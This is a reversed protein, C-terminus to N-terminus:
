VEEKKADEAKHGIVKHIGKEAADGIAGGIDDSRFAIRSLGASWIWYGFWGFIFGALVQLIPDAGHSEMWPWKWVLLLHAIRPGCVGLMLGCLVRLTTKRKDSVTGTNYAAWLGVVAGIACFATFTALNRGEAMVAVSAALPAAMLYTLNM